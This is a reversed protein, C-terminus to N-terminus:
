GMYWVVAGGGGCCYYSSTSSAGAFGQGVTGTGGVSGGNDGVGLVVAM